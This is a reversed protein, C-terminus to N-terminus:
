IGVRRVFVYGLDSGDGFLGFSGFEFGFNGEEDGGIGFEDFGGNFM